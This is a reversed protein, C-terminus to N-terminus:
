PNGQADQAATQVADTAPPLKPVLGLLPAIRAIIRGAMPVATFDSLILGFTKKTGHPQDLLV